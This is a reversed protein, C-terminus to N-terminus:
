DARSWRQKKCVVRMACGKVELAGGVLRLAGRVTQHKDPIIVTGRWHGPGVAAMDRLLTMGVLEKGTARRTDASAKASAAVVKGCWHAGTSACPAIAITLTRSPNTWRGAPSEDNAAILLLAALAIM